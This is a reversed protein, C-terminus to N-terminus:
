NRESGEVVAVARAVAATNCDVVMQAEIDEVVALGFPGKRWDIGAGASSRVVAFNHRARKGVLELVHARLNSHAVM